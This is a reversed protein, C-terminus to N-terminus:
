VSVGLIIDQQDKSLPYKSNAKSIVDEASLLGGQIAEAWKPFNKDFQDSPYESNSTKTNQPTIDKELAIDQLEEAVALGKLVDTFEDRAAFGRARMQLMRKPYQTWPGQKGWLGARQADEVSFSVVKEAHGRRKVIAYATMTSEDINEEFKECLPSSLIIAKVADGWIAPRGNIVAINQVAQMPALGVESGMQVAILVNGPKGKFDKPVLDSNAMLDALQMAENLNQPTLSFGNSATQLQQEM